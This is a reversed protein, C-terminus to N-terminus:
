NEGPKYPVHINYIHTHDSYNGGKFHAGSGPYAKHHQPVGYEDAWNDLIRAEAESIPRGQKPKGNGAGSDGKGKRSGTAPLGVEENSAYQGNPRHWRGHENAREEIRLEKIYLAELESKLYLRGLEMMKQM